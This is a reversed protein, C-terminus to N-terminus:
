PTGARESQIVADYEHHRRRPPVHDVGGRTFPGCRLIRWVALASGKAAGHIRIAEEAYHSCSPYFRCQGGLWGSFLIRYLHILAILGQRVPAGAVWM